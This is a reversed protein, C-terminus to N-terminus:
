NLLEPLFLLGQFEINLEVASIQLDQLPFDLFCGLFTYAVVKGGQMEKHMTVLEGM